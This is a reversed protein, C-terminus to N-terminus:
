DSALSSTLCMPRFRLRLNGCGQPHAAVQQFFSLLPSLWKTSFKELIAAVGEGLGGFGCCCAVWWPPRPNFFNAPDWDRFLLRFTGRQGEPAVLLGGVEEGNWVLWPVVEPVVQLFLAQSDGKKLPSSDFLLFHFYVKFAKDMAPKCLPHPLHRAYGLCM